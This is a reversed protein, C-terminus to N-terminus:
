QGTLVFPSWEVPHAFKKGKIMDLKANRLATSYPQRKLINRYFQVMLDSTSKDAVQWLSVLLNQAGAYMFGRTLGLIGEGKAVQGLGSECASLVVLDANLRLNYVEGSYLVGDELSNSDPAAFIIGSLKPKDENILGHTAIHIYRYSVIEPSKLLSEDAAKHLFAKAPRKNAEFLAVIEKIENESEKLEAFREGDVTRSRTVREDSTSYVPKSHPPQAAFVPAVGAFAGQESRGSKRSREALLRASLHYSVDFDRILYPLSAFDVSSSKRVPKTLLAEFPLYNLIGDPIVYLKRIGNLQNKVPEILQKYLRHSLDVYGAVDLNQLSRRFQRVLDAPPSHLEIFKASARNKTVVFITVSSDGAVYELLATKDDLLQKQVEALSVTRTQLKLSHYDPYQKEFRETLKTYRQRLDFVASEWQSIKAKGALGIAPQNAQNRKEKERQIQTEYYTLDTRLASEQELLSDPIGAFQRANSESIADLLVGAKSREALSFATSLYLFDRTAEHLKRASQIGKEYVDFARRGLQLKSGEAGFGRRITEVLQAALEYAELSTKLDQLQSSMDYRRQLVEAKGALSSLLDLDSPSKLASPNTHVNADNFDELLAILAKQHYRLATDLQNRAAYVTALGDYSQSVRVNKEGLTERRLRLSQELWSIAKDFDGLNGYAEGINYYCQLVNPHKKGLREEWIALAEQYAELARDYQKMDSYIRGMNNVVGAVNPHKPGLRKVFIAKSKNGAELAKDFEGRSRYTMAINNYRIGFSPNDSELTEAMISLSKLYHELSLDYDGLRMQVAAINNYLAAIDPHKEGQVKRRAELARTFYEIAKQYDGRTEYIGAMSNYTSGINSLDDKETERMLELARRNYALASDHEGLDFYIGAFLSSIDWQLSTELGSRDRDIDSAMHAAVLASDHKSVQRYNAGLLVLRRAATALDEALLRQEAEPGIRLISIAKEYAGKSRLCTAKGNLCRVWSGTMGAQAYIASAKDFLVIASDYRAAKQLQSGQEYLARAAATDAIAPEQSWAEGSSLLSLIIFYFALLWRLFPFDNRRIKLSTGVRKLDPRFGSSLWTQIGASFGRAHCPVKSLAESVKM